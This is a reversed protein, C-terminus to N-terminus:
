RKRWRQWWPRHRLEDIEARYRDNMDQLTKIHDRQEDITMNKAELVRDYSARIEALFGTADELAQLASSPVPEAAIILRRVEDYTKGQDLLGKARRLVAIDSDNYRRQAAKGDTTLTSQAGESLFGAFENSWVRLTVPAIGLQKAVDGPRYAM